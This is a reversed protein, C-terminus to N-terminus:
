RRGAAVVMQRFSRLLYKKARADRLHSTPMCGEADLPSSGNEMLWNVIFSSFWDEELFMHKDHRQLSMGTAQDILLDDGIVYDVKVPRCQGRHIDDYFVGVHPQDRHTDVFIGFNEVIELGNRKVKPLENIRRQVAPHIWAKGTTTV